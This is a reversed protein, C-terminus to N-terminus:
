RIPSVNGGTNINYDNGRTAIIILAAAAGGFVLAWPLWAAGGRNNNTTTQRNSVANALTGTATVDGSIVSGTIKDGVINLAVTSNPAVRVNGLKGFSVIASADAPTSITSASVLSRGSQSREGNVIVFADGQGVVTLDGVVSSGAGALAISSSVALMVVSLSFAIFRNFFAKKNM